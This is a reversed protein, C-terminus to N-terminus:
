KLLSYVESTFDTELKIAIDEKTIDLIEVQIKNLKLLNKVQDRCNSAIYVKDIKDKHKLAQKVGFFIKGSEIGQKLEHVM